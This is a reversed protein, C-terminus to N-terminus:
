EITINYPDGRWARRSSDGIDTSDFTRALALRAVKRGSVGVTVGGRQTEDARSRQEVPVVRGDVDDAPQQLRVAGFDHMEPVVAADGVDNAGRDLFVGVADGAARVLAPM